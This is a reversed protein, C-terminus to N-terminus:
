STKSKEYLIKGKKIMEETIFYWNNKYAQGIEGPTLVSIDLAQYVPVLRIVEEVREWFPRKTKKVVLLDVDSEWTIDGRATSGFAIIREPKYKQIIIKTIREVEQYYKKEKVAKEM